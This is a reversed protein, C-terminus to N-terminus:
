LKYESYNLSVNKEKEPGQSFVLFRERNLPKEFHSILVIIHDIVSWSFYAMIGLWAGVISASCLDILDNGM